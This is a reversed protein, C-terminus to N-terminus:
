NLSYGVGLKSLPTISVFKIDEVKALKQRKRPPEPVLPIINGGGTASGDNNGSDDSLEPNSITLFAISVYHVVQSFDASVVFADAANTLAYNLLGVGFVIISWTKVNKARFKKLM